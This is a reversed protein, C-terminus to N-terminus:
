ARAVDVQGDGLQSAVWRQAQEHLHQGPQRGPYRRGVRGRRSGALRVHPVCVLPDNLRDDGTVAGQGPVPHEAVEL